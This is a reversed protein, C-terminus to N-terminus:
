AAQGPARPIRYRRDADQADIGTNTDERVTRVPTAKAAAYSADVIKWAITPSTDISLTKAAKDLKFAERFLAIDFLVPAGDTALM